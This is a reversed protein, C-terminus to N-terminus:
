LMPREAITMRLSTRCGAPGERADSSDSTVTLIARSQNRRGNWFSPRERSLVDQLQQYLFDAQSLVLIYNIPNM